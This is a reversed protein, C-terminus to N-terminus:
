LEYKSFYEKLGRRIERKLEIDTSHEQINQLALRAQVARDKKGEDADGRGALIDFLIRVAEKNGIRALGTIMINDVMPNASIAKELYPVAIPDEVYSLAVAANAAREYHAINKSIQALFEDCVQKLRGTDRPVVEVIFRSAWATLTTGGAQIGIPRKLRATVEYRGPTSFEFWKNLLLQQTYTEEPSVSFKGLRTFGGWDEATRPQILVGDPRKVTFVFGGERNEGLNLEVPQTLNNRITLNLVIPEHATYTPSSLSFSVTVAEQGQPHSFQHAAPAGNSPSSELAKLSAVPGGLFVAAAIFILLRYPTTTKLM